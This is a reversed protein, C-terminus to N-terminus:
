SSVDAEPEAECHDVKLRLRDGVPVRTTATGRAPVEVTYSSNNLIQTGQDDYFLVHAQFEAERGNPNSIEVTAYPKKATACAVLKATGDKLARGSTASSTATARHTPRRGYNRGGTSGTTGSGGTASSGATTGGSGYSGDDSDDDYTGGGSTSSSSSDHDQHSSSCGGGGGGHRGHHGRSFGSLSLVVLTLVATYRLARTRTQLHM